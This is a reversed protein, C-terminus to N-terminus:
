INRRGENSNPEHTVAEAASKAHHRLIDSSTRLTDRTIEAGTRRIDRSIAQDAREQYFRLASAVMLLVAALIVISIFESSSLNSAEVGFVELRMGLVTILLVTALGFLFTSAGKDSLKALREMTSFIQDSFEGYLSMSTEILQKADTQLEGDGKSDAPRTMTNTPPEM